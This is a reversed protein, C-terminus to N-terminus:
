EVYEIDQIYKGFSCQTCAKRAISYALEAAAGIESATCSTQLFHSM